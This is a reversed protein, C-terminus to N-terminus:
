RLRQLVYPMSSDDLFVLCQRGIQTIRWVSKEDPTDLSDRPPMTTLTNGKLKWSGTYMKSPRDPPDAGYLTVRHGRQFSFEYDHTRYHCRWIGILEEERVARTEASVESCIPLHIRRYTDTHGSVTIELRNKSIEMLQLRKQSRKKSYSDTANLTLRDGAIHWTGFQEQLPVVALIANNRSFSTFSGDRRLDIESFREESTSRWLGVLQEPSAAFAVPSLALWFVIRWYPRLM